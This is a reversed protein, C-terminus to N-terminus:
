DMSKNASNKSPDSKPNGSAIEKARMARDKDVYNRMQAASFLEFGDDCYAFRVPLPPYDNFNIEANSSNKLAVAVVHGAFRECANSVELYMDPESSETLGTQEYIIKALPTM